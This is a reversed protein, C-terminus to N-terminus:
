LFVTRASPEDVNSRPPLAQDDSVFGIRRKVDVPDETPSRGFVRVAGGDPSLLGVATHILTTKGAANRGLLGAIEGEHVSFSRGRLVPVGKKYSKSVNLFELVPTM